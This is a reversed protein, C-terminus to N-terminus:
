FLMEDNIESPQQALSPEGKVRKRRDDDEQSVLGPIVSRSGGQGVAVAQGGVGGADAADIKITPTSILAAGTEGVTTAGQKTVAISGAAVTPAQPSQALAPGVLAVTAVSALLARRFM